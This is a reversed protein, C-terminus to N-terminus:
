PAPITRLRAVVKGLHVPALGHGSEKYVAMIGDVLRAMLDEDLLFAPAAATTETPEQHPRAM